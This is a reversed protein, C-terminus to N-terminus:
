AMGPKSTGPLRVPARRSGRAPQSPRAAGKKPGSKAPKGESGPTEAFAIRVVEEITSVPRFEIAKRVEESIEEIEPENDAPLIVTPAHARHAAIAKEKLGGIKLVRGRLTIEGTMAIDRRVPRKTLASLMSIAITVGASPGDKPIAGEPVHVHIDLEKYFDANLGYKEYNTRIFSLAAQASEKMVDGLKGTLTLSGKGPMLTTEVPLIEGGAETWALGTAVGIEKVDHLAQDKHREPGLLERVRTATVVTATEDPKEVRARAVKRCISSIERELNRVGAEQTYAQILKDLGAREIRLKRQNM